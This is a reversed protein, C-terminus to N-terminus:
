KVDREEKFKRFAKCEKKHYADWHTKQCDVSCYSVVNCSGCKRLNANAGCNGCGHPNMVTFNIVKAVNPVDHEMVDPPITMFLRVPNVADHSVLYAIYNGKSEEADLEDTEIFEKYLMPSFVYRVIPPKNPNRNSDRLVSKNDEYDFIHLGETGNTVINIKARTVLRKIIKDAQANSVAM